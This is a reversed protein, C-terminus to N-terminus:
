RGLSQGIPLVCRMPGGDGAALSALALVAYAQIPLACHSVHSRTRGSGFLQEALPLLPWRPILVRPKIDNSCM